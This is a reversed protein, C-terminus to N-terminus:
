FPTPKHDRSLATAKGDTVVISRSDGCNGVFIKNATVLATIACSGGWKRDKPTWDVQNRINNDTRCFGRTFAKVMDQLTPADTKMAREYDDTARLARFLNEAAFKSVHAGGHGDYVGFFASDARGTEKKGVSICHADEQSARWGQMSCAAWKLGSPGDEGSETYVDTVPDRRFGRPGNSASASSSSSSSSSAGEFESACLGM